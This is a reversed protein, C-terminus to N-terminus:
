LMENDESSDQTTSLRIMEGEGTDRGKSSMQFWRKKRLYSGIGIAVALIIASLGGCALGVLISILVGSAGSSDVHHALVTRSNIKQVPRSNHNLMNKFPDIQSPPAEAVQASVYWLANETCPPFPQSGRYAYIDNIVFLKKGIKRISNMGHFVDGLHVSPVVLTENEKSPLKASDFIFSSLFPHKPAHDSSKFLVSVVSIEDRKPLINYFQIELPYHNGDITHESPSHFSYYLLNYVKSYGFYGGSIHALEAYQVQLERGTNRLAADTQPQSSFHIPEIQIKTKPEEKKVNKTEINIPSQQKGNGCTSYADCLQSWHSPGHSSNPNYNWFPCSSSSVFSILNILTFFVVFFQFFISLLKYKM